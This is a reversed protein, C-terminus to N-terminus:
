VGHRKFFFCLVVDLADELSLRFDGSVDYYAEEGVSV